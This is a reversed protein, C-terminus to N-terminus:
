NPPGFGRRGGDRQIRVSDQQEPTWGKQNMYTTAADPNTRYQTRLVDTLTSQRLEPTSITEAWALGAEPEDRTVAPALGAAASDRDPGAPLASLSESAAEPDKRAWPGYTGIYAKTRSAGTPLSNAFAIAAKPDTAAIRGSYEGAANIAFPETANASILKGAKDPEARYLQEAVSEFAGRKMDPDKLGLAWTTAADLGNKTKMKEEAIAKTMNSREDKDTLKTVYDIAADPNERAMGSILGRTMMGKEWGNDVKQEELWKAAAVPDKGAWGSLGAMGIFRGPGQQKMSEAMAAPGDMSGWKFALLGVYRFGEFGPMKSRVEQLVTPANEPSLKEMLLGFMISSKVPDSEALVEGIAAKMADKDLPGDGTTYKKLFDAVDALANLKPVAMTDGKATSAAGSSTSTASIRSSSAAAATSGSQPLYKGGAFFAAAAVVIWGGHTLLTNAM